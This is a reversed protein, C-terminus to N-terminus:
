VSYVVVKNRYKESLMRAIESNSNLLILDSSSADIVSELQQENIVYVEITFAHNSLLFERISELVKPSALKSALVIKLGRPGELRLLDSLAKIVNDNNVDCIVIIKEPKKYLAKNLM